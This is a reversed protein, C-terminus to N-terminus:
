GISKRYRGFWKSYNHTCKGKITKPEFLTPFLYQQNKNRANDVFQLFSLRTLQSHIPVKRISATNKVTEGISEDPHILIYPINQEINIDNPTLRGIEELRCGYFLRPHNDM